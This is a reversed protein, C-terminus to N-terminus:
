GEGGTGGGGGKGAIAETSQSVIMMSLTLQGGNGAM